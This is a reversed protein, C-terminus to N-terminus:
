YYAYASLLATILYLFLSAVDVLMSVFYLRRLCYDLLVIWVELWWLDCGFTLGVICSM